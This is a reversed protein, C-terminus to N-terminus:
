LAIAIGLLTLPGVMLNSLHSWSIITGILIVFYSLQHWIITLPYLHWPPSNMPILGIILPWYLNQLSRYSVTCHTSPFVTSAKYLVKKRPLFPVVILIWIAYSCAEPPTELIQWTGRLRFCERAIDELREEAVISHRVCTSLVTMSFSSWFATCDLGWNNWNSFWIIIIKFIYFM